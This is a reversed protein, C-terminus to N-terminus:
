DCTKEATVIKRVQFIAALDPARACCSFPKEFELTFSCLDHDDSRDGQGQKASEGSREM